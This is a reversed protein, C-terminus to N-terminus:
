GAGLTYTKEVDYVALTLSCFLSCLSSIIKVERENSADFKGLVSGLLFSNRTATNQTITPPWDFFSVSTKVFELQICNKNPTKLM